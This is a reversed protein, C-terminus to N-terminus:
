GAEDFGIDESQSSRRWLVVYHPVFPNDEETWDDIGKAKLVKGTAWAYIKVFLLAPWQVLWEIACWFIVGPSFGIRETM